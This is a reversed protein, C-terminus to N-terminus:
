NGPHAVIEFRRKGVFFVSAYKMDTHEAFEPM